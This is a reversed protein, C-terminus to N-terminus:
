NPNYFDCNQQFDPRGGRFSFVRLLAGKLLHSRDHAGTQIWGARGNKKPSHKVRGECYIVAARHLKKTNSFAHKKKIFHM